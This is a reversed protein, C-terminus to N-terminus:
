EVAASAVEAFGGLIAMESPGAPNGQADLDTWSVSLKRAARTVAVYALRLEEQADGRRFPFLGRSMGIVHVVDWELGKSRHVTSLQVAPIEDDTDKREGRAFALLEDVGSMGSACEALAACAIDTDTEDDEAAGSDRYLDAIGLDDLIYAIAAGLSEDLAARVGDVDALLSAAGRRWRGLEGRARMERVGAVSRAKALFARGLRRLPACYIRAMADEDTEDVAAALYAVVTRVEPRGFFGRGAVRYKIGRRILQMEIASSQANLRYLVAIDDPSVGAAIDAEIDDVVGQAQDLSNLYSAGARVARLDERGAVMMGQYLRDQATELYRNAVSLIESGSRWNVSLPALTAGQDQHRRMLKPAAGRFAYISQQDDGVAVLNREGDEVRALHEVIAWQALSNDQVEDVCVHQYAGRWGAVWRDKREGRLIARACVSLMDDFTIWRVNAERSFPLHGDVDVFRAPDACARELRRYVRAYVSAVVGYREVAWGSEVGDDSRAYFAPYQTGDRGEWAEPWVLAAKAEGIASLVSAVRYAPDDSLVEESLAGEALMVQLVDTVVRRLQWAQPVVLRRRHGAGRVMEYAVSHLTRYEVGAPVGLEAARQKMDEAGRKSFTSMLINNPNIGTECLRKIRALLVTTKGSGAVAVVLLAGRAWEIIRKQEDTWNM